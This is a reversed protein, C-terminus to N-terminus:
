FMRALQDMIQETGQKRGAPGQAAPAFPTDFYVSQETYALQASKGKAVFAATGLTVSILSGNVHMDYVFVIRENPVIEHYTAVCRSEIGGAHRGHSIDVGGVRFDNKRELETWGEPGAFWQNKLAPDAWAEYLRAVSTDYTREITFTDHVIM